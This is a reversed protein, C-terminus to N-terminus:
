ERRCSPFFPWRRPAARSRGSRRGGLSGLPPAGRWQARGDWLTWRTGGPETRTGPSSGTTFGFGSGCPMFFPFGLAGRQLKKSCGTPCGEGVRGARLGQKVGAGSCGGLTDGPCGVPESRWASAAGAVLAGSWLTLTPSWPSGCVRGAQGGQQPRGPMDATWVPCAQGRARPRAGGTGPWSHRPGLAETPGPCLTPKGKAAALSPENPVPGQGGLRDDSGRATSRVSLRGPPPDCPGWSTHSWIPLLGNAATVTM